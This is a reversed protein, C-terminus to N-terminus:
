GIKINLERVAEILRIFDAPFVDGINGIRFTDAQSIKGPYIVFGKSKLAYYFAKFDFDASPYYFSTIVPSQENDPLLTKFGLSRMGEVLIRHNECYRAHRAEVGGEIQLEKMAQMFARVVHTPSTFRWKGHGKEMTEWQDYLDLSLSRAVGKCQELLSRRAIVFGFGPVGQICKNASSILFDIGLAAMDVPVGGFSSMADVILVKGHSKVAGAIEALPNLVGTTTECHVVSVHTVEPHANLYGDIEKPDVAQTEDFQMVHCNLHYYGAIVGMRKGYAGNAVVLLHDDPRIASGLAAEVCFTGSGQMLVSTYEEPRSTALEVLQKRIVEVIGINYDEDWTCWDSMMAEKVTESTTLPGPTLLLYPRM